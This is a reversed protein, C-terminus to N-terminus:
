WLRSVWFGLVVFPLLSLALIFVVALGYGCFTVVWIFLWILRAFLHSIM